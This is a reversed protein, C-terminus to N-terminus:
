WEGDLDRWYRAAVVCVVMGVAGITCLVGLLFDNM